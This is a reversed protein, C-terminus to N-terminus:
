WLAVAKDYARQATSRTAATDTAIAVVDEYVTITQGSVDVVATIRTATTQAGIPSLTLAVASFTTDYGSIVGTFHPCTSPIAGLRAMAPSLSGPAMQLLAESVAAGSNQNVLVATADANTGTPDVALAPCGSLSSDAIGSSGPQAVYGDPLDKAALLAAQLEAWSPTAPQPSSSTGTTKPATPSPTPHAAPPAGHPSPSASPSATMSPSPNPTGSDSPSVAPPSGTAPAKPLGTGDLRERSTGCASLSVAVTVLVVLFCRAAKRPKMLVVGLNTFGADIRGLTDIARV